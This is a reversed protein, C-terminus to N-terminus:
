NPFLIAIAFSVLDNPAKPVTLSEDVDESSSSYHDHEDPAKSDFQGCRDPSKYAIVSFMSFVYMSWFHM